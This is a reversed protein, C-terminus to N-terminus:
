LLTTKYQVYSSLMVTMKKANPIRVRETVIKEASTKQIKKFLSWYYKYALYVGFRASVPLKRIGILAEKFEQEIDKEIECKFLTTYPFLTSRPPRQIM